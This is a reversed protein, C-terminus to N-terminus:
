CVRGSWLSAADLPMCALGVACRWSRPGSSRGHSAMSSGEDIGFVILLASATLLHPRTSGM